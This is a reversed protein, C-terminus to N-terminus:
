CALLVSLALLALAFAPPRRGVAAGLVLEGRDQLRTPAGTTPSATTPASTPAGDSKHGYVLLTWSIFVGHHDGDDDFDDGYLSAWYEAFADDGDDEEYYPACACFCAKRARVGDENRKPCREKWDEAVWECTRSPKSERYWASDDECPAFETYPDDISESTGNFTRKRADRVTLTFAGADAVEGWHKVTTFKWSELRKGDEMRERALLSVVGNRELEVRVDGKYPHAITLLVVVHEVILDAAPVAASSPVAAGGDPIPLGVITTVASATESRWNVWTAATEAAAAVDLMGFGYDDHHRVGAANTRWGGDGVGVAAASAALVGQVDRWTLNPNAELMVAIAGSVLPCSFSTGITADGCDGAVGAALPFATVMNRLHDLDGGPASLFLAAGSTSYSAHLLDRGLAGVSITYRSNLFGEFNVDDGNTYENGSSFVYVMGKGGRGSATGEKLGAAAAASLQNMGCRVFLSDLGLCADRDREFALHDSCYAVVAVECKWHLRGHAWAVTANCADQGCPSFPANADFPCAADSATAPYFGRDCADIGWSNSSIDNRDLGATLYGDEANGPMFSDFINCSALTADYAVGAGCVGNSSALALAATHTGHAGGSLHAYSACSSAVDVKDLDPHDHDVGDDNVLIQVGAGTYGAAWAEPARIAEMYWATAEYAPDPVPPDPRAACTGSWDAAECNVVKGLSAFWAISPLGLTANACLGDAECFVCGETSVCDGCTLAGVCGDCDRADCECYTPRDCEGDVAYPCSDSEYSCSAPEAALAYRLLLLAVAFRLQNMTGM